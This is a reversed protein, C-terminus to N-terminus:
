YKDLLYNFYKQEEETEDKQTINLKSKLKYYNFNYEGGKDNTYNLKTLYNYNIKIKKYINELINDCFSFEEQEDETPNRPLALIEQIRNLSSTKVRLYFEHVDEATQIKKFLMSSVHDSTIIYSSILKNINKCFPLLDICMREMIEFPYLM